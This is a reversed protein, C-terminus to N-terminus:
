YPWHGAKMKQYSKKLCLIKNEPINFVLAWYSASKRSIGKKRLLTEKIESIEFNEMMWKVAPKDGYELIREIFYYPFKEPNIKAFDADWFYKRLFEPLPKNNLEKTNM